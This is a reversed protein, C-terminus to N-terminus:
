MQSIYNEAEQASRVEGSTVAASLRKGHVKSQQYAKVLVTLIDLPFKEPSTTIEKRVGIPLSLININEQVQKAPVGLNQSLDEIQANQSLLQQYGDGIEIPNIDQRHMNESLSLMQLRDERAILEVICPVADLGATEAAKLRRRGFVLRYKKSGKLRVVKLPQQIGYVKISAVLFDLNSISKRIYNPPVEIDRINISVVELAVEPEDPGDAGVNLGEGRLKAVRESFRNLSTSDKKDTQDETRKNVIMKLISM